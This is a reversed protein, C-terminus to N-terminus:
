LVNAAIFYGWLRSPPMHEVILKRNLIEKKASQLHDTSIVNAEHHEIVNAEPGVHKLNLAVMWTKGHRKLSSSRPNRVASNTSEEVSGLSATSLL